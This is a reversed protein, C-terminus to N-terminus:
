REERNNKKKIVGSNREIDVEMKMEFSKMMQIHDNPDKITVYRPATKM